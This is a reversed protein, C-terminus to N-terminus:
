GKEGKPLRDVAADFYFFIEHRDGTHIRTAQQKVQTRYTVTLKYDGPKLNVYLWPGDATTELVTKGSADVIKVMADALFAGSGKAATLVRLSFRGRQKELSDLEGTGIGGTVYPEGQATKGDTMAVAPGTLLAALLFVPMVKFTKNKHM